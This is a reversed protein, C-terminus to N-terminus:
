WALSPDGRVAGSARMPSNYPSKDKDRLQSYRQARMYMHPSTLFHSFSKFHHSLSLFISNDVESVEPAQMLFVPLPGLVSQGDWQISGCFANFPHSHSWLLLPSSSWTDPESRAESNLGPIWHSLFFCVTLQRSWDGLFEISLFFFFKSAQRTAWHYLVMRGICFVLIWGRIQSPGM